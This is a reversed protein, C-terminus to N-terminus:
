WLYQLMEREMSGMINKYSFCFLIGTVVMSNEFKLDTHGHSTKFVFQQRHNYSATPHSGGIVTFPQPANSASFSTIGTVTLNSSIGVVDSVDLTGTIDVDNNFTTNYPIINGSTAFTVGVQM